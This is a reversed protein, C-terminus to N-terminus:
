PTINEIEKIKESIVLITDNIQNVVKLANFKLVHLGNQNLREDREEDYKQKDDHSIGDIEIVLNLKSCFFDVIYNDIPKQRTFQYGHM